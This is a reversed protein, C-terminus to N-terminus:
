LECTGTPCAIVEVERSGNRYVTLGKLGLWHAKVIIDAIEKPSLDIKLYKKLLSLSVKM